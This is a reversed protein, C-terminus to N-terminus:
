SNNRDGALRRNELQEYLPGVHKQAYFVLSESAELRKKTSDSVFAKHPAKADFVSQRTMIALEEASPKLRFHELIKTTVIGPLQDYNVLLCDTGSAYELASRCFLALTQAFREEATEAAAGNASEPSFNYGLAGAIMQASPERAHSVMVEVPNRYMFIWPVQPYAEAILSFDVINWSDFKIFFNEDQPFRKQALLSILWRLWRVKQGRTVNPFFSDARIIKDITLAESIVINKEVAALMQSVLTSGCRSLHFIFGKPALGPSQEFREGLFDISTQRRFLQNFPQEALKELTEGHFPEVFRNEYLFCWDAVMRGDKWSFNVPLWNHFDEPNLDM